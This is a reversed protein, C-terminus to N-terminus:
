SLLPIKIPILITFTIAFTITFIIISSVSLTAGEQALLVFSLCSLFFIVITNEPTSIFIMAWDM